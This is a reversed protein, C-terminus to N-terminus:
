EEYIWDTGDETTVPVPPFTVGEEMIIKHVLATVTLTLTDTTPNTTIAVGSGVLTLTDAASDAVVDSQGNVAVTSFANAAYSHSHGLASYITDFYTKAAVKINAWTISRLRGSISDWIGFRDANDLTTKATASFIQAGVGGREITWPILIDENILETQAEYMLVTAIMVKGSTPLPIDQATAIERAGFNTGANASLMGDEDAEINVFVAGATVVQSSLDFSQTDVMVYTDGTRIIGGYVQVTFSAGNLVLVDMVLIQKRDLWTIDAGDPFEHQAHHYEVRGGASPTTYTERVRIIQWISPLTRSRGIIVLQDFDPAAHVSNYVKVVKANILRAYLVGAVDTQVVENEDGLWAPQEDLWEASEKQILRKLQKRPNPM